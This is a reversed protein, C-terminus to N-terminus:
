RVFAAPKRAVYWHSVWEDGCSRDDDVVLLEAGLRQLLAVVEDRAVGHMPFDGPEEGDEDGPDLELLDPWPPADVAQPAPPSEAAPSAAAPLPAFAV